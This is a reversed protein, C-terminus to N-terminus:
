CGEGNIHGPDRVFTKSMMVWNIQGIGLPLFYRIFNLVEVKDGIHGCGVLCGWVRHTM